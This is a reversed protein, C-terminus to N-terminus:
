HSLGNKDLKLLSEEANRRDGDASQAVANQQRRSRSWSFGWFFNLASLLCPSLM